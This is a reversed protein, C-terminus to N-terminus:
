AISRRQAADGAPDSAEEGVRAATHGERREARAGQEDRASEQDTPEGAPEDPLRPCASFVFPRGYVHAQGKTARRRSAKWCVYGAEKRTMAAPPKRDNKTSNHLM